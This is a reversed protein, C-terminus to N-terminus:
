NIVKCLYRDTMNKNETFIQIIVGENRGGTFNNM